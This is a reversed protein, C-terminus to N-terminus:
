KGRLHYHVFKAMMRIERDSLQSRFPLMGNGGNAIQGYIEDETKFKFEGHRLSPVVTGDSLTRGEGDSGHCIACRQRFMSAEYSRETALDVPKAASSCAVPYFLAATFVVLLKIKKADSM